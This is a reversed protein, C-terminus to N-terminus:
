TVVQITQPEHGLLTLLTKERGFRGSQSQPGGLKTSLPYQRKVTNPM